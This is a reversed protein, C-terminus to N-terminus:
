EEVGLIRSVEDVVICRDRGFEGCTVVVHEVDEGVGSECMVCRKEIIIKCKKRDELLGASGTRLRYLLKFTM